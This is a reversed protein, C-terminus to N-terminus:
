DGNLFESIIDMISLEIDLDARNSFKKITDLTIFYPRYVKMILKEHEDEDLDDFRLGFESNLGISMINSSQRRNEKIISPLNKFFKKSVKVIQLFKGEGWDQENRKQDTEKFLLIKTGNTNIM